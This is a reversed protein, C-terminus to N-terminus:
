NNKNIILLTGFAMGPLSETSNFIKPIYPTGLGKISSLTIAPPLANIKLLFKIYLQQKNASLSILM